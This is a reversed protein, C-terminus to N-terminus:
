ACYNDPTHNHESFAAPDYLRAFSACETYSGFSNSWANCTSTTDGVFQSGIFVGWNYIMCERANSGCGNEVRSFFSGDSASSGAVWGHGVCATHYEAALAVKVIAAFSFACLLALLLLGGRLKSPSAAM